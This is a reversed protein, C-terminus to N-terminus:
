PQVAPLTSPSVTNLCKPHGFGSPSTGVGGSGGPNQGTGGTGDPNTAIDYIINDPRNVDGSVGGVGSLHDLGL